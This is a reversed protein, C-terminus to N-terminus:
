LSVALPEAVGRAGSGSYRNLPPDNWRACRSGCLAGDNWTGGLLAHNPVNYGSGKQSTRAADYQATWNTSTVYPGGAEISWQWLVGCCDECGINSIMRRSATDVHGGTTIPDASGAINTGQNSGNSLSMFEYQMPPRYGILALQECFDYWDFGTKADWVSAGDAITGGYASVLKGGSWSPLYIMTWRNTAADFVAGNNSIPHCNKLDWVSSPLINGAVYGSLPHGSIVGVDACLCHFGGVKRSTTSTYGTPATANASAVNGILGSNNCAYVYFDKGARNTAVRYDTALSDWTASQSLDLTAQTSLFLLVGGVDVAMRNPSLLVYRDAAVTVTKAAWTQDRTYTGPLAGVLGTDPLVGGNLADFYGNGWHLATTGLSGEGTARPVINKTSM